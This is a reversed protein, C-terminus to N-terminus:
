CGTANEFKRDLFSGEVNEAIEVFRNTPVSFALMNEPIFQRVVPDMLGIVSKPARQFKEYYPITFVSQCGSAFPTLVNDMNQERDYNSLVTLSTLGNVDPFLNIVEIEKDQDITDIKEMYLYEAKPSPVRKLAEQYYGRALKRNKKFGERDAIFSGDKGKPAKFGFYEVAGICANGHDESFRIRRNKNLAMKLHMFMCIWRNSKFAFSPEIRESSYYWGIAPYNFSVTESLKHLSDRVFASNM